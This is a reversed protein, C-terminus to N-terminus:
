PLDEKDTVARRNWRALLEARRRGNEAGHAGIDDAMEATMYADCPECGVAFTAATYGWSGPYITLLVPEGCFPCPKLNVDAM